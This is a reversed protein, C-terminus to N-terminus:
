SDISGNDDLLKALHNYHDEQELSNYTLFAMKPMSQKIDDIDVGCELLKRKTEQRISNSADTYSTPTTSFRQYYPKKNITGKLVRYKNKRNEEIELGFASQLTSILDATWKQFRKSNSM